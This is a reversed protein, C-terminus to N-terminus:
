ATIKMHSSKTIYQCGKNGSGSFVCLKAVHFGIINNLVSKDKVSINLTRKLGKAREYFLNAGEHLIVEAKM